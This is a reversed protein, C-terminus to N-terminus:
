SSPPPFCREETWQLDQRFGISNLPVDDSGSECEDFTNGHSAATSTVQATQAPRLIESDWDQRCQKQYGRLDDQQQRQSSKPPSFRSRLSDRVKPPLHRNLKVLPAMTPLCASLVEIAPEVVTWSAKGTSYTVDELNENLLVTLRVIAIIISLGGSLFIALVGLKRLFSMQLRLVASVPLALIIADLLINSIQMAQVFKLLNYCHGAKEQNWYKDPPICQFAAGFNNAFLWAIVLVGVAYLPKRFQPTSFVRRYFLLISLKIATMSLGYM